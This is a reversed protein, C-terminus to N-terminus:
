AEANGSRGRKMTTTADDVEQFAAIRCMGM